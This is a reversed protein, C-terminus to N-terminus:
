PTDQFASGAQTAFFFAPRSDLRPLPTLRTAGSLALSDAMAQREVPDNSFQEFMDPTVAVSPGAPAAASKCVEASDAVQLVAAIMVVIVGLWPPSVPLRGTTEDGVEMQVARMIKPRIWALDSATGRNQLRQELSVFNDSPKEM